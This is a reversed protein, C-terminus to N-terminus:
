AVAIVNPQIRSTLAEPTYEAPELVIWFEPSDPFTLSQNLFEAYSEVLRLNDFKMARERDFCTAIRPKSSGKAHSAGIFYRKKTGAAEHPNTVLFFNRNHPANMPLEAVDDISARFAHPSFFLETAM